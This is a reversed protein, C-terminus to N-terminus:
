LWYFVVLLVCAVVVQVQWFRVLPIMQLPQDCRALRPVMAILGAAVFLLHFSTLGFYAMAWKCGSALAVPLRLWPYNRNLGRQDKGNLEDRLTQRRKMAELENLCRARSDEAETVMTAVATLRANAAEFDSQMAAIQEDLLVVNAPTEDDFEPPFKRREDKASQLKGKVESVTALQSKLAPTHTAIAESARQLADNTAAERAADEQKVRQGFQAHTEEFAQSPFIDYALAVMAARQDEESSSGGVRVETWQLEAAILQNVFELRQSRDAAEGSGSDSSATRQVGAANLDAALDHLRRHVASLYYLDARDHVGPGIVPVLGDRGRSRLENLQLAVFLAGLGLTWGLWRAGCARNEAMRKAQAITFASALIVAAAILGRTWDLRVDAETPWANTSRWWVIGGVSLAFMLVEFVLLGGARELRSQPERM